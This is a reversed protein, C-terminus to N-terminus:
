PLGLEPKFTRLPKYLTRLKLYSKIRASFHYVINYLEDKYTEKKKEFFKKRYFMEFGKLMSKEFKNQWDLQLVGELRLILDTKQTKVKVGKHMIEVDRTNLTQFDIRLFYRFYASNDPQKCVRWWIHHEKAGTHTTREWYLQEFRDDFGDIDTFGEELLWDHLNEYLTKIHLVDDEEIEFRGISIDKEKDWPRLQRFTGM